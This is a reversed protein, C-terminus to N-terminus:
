ARDDGHRAIRLFHMIRQGSEPRDRRILERTSPHLGERREAELYSRIRTAATARPRDLAHRTM